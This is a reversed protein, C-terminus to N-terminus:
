DHVYQFLLGELTLGPGFAFSLLHQGDHEKHLKKLISALVFLVTPSSMNGNSKLVEISHSLEHTDLGLEEQIVQLIRKGGPHIAFHSIEKLTLGTRAVLRNAMDRINKQIIDPVKQTLTMDFGQNGIRWSMDDLGDPALDTFQGEIKLAPGYSKGTILVAAAGDGFLANSLLADRHSASQLHISCLEISVMLVRAEPNTEAIYRATKIGNFAGYCGMFQISTREITSPFHFHRILDIDLGPAYMGTCSVLILHTPLLDPNFSLLMEVAKIALPLAHQEYLRMREATSPFSNKNGFIARSNQQFDPLVSYRQQIGSARYILRLERTAAEDLELREIMFDALAQQSTVFDPVATAISSLYAPM